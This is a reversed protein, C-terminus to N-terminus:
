EPEYALVPQLWREAEERPMGKRSAYDEVQDRGLWRISFYRSDPHAFYWGSVAAAPWMAFSETLKIGATREVDLLRWLRAKETHDPCAPYGPAPRVGRYGERILVENSLDEEPAYWQRRVRAHLAEAFAEALRDALAKLLIASYDDHGASFRELAAEIGHGTTVAFAGMYDAVGASAPAILDALSWCHPEAGKPQRQQRLMSLQVLPEGAAEHDEWLLLDDGERRARYFGYM